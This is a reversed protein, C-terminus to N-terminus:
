SLWCFESCMRLYDRDHAVHIWDMVKWGTEGLDMIIDEWRRRPRGLQRKGEPNGVFIYYVNKMEGM